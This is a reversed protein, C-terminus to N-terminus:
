RLKLNVQWSYGFSAVDARGGGATRERGPGSDFGERPEPAVSLLATGLGGDREGRDALQRKREALLTPPILIDRARPERM